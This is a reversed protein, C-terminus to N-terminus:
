CKKGEMLMIVQDAAVIDKPAILVERITGSQEARIETEMKMSEIVCLVADAAVEDGPAVEIRLVAGPLPAKVEAAVGGGAPVPASTPVSAATSRVGPACVEVKLRRGGAPLEYVATDGAGPAQRFRRVAEVAANAIEEDSPAAPAAKRIPVAPAPEFKGAYPKLLKALLNMILVMIILFLYVMGMGLVMAKLGDM